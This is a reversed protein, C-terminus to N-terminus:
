KQKLKKFVNMIFWVDLVVVSGFVFKEVIDSSSICLYAFLITLGLYLLVVFGVFFKRILRPISKSLSGEVAGEVMLEGLFEVLFNM